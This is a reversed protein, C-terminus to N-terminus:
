GYTSHFGPAELAILLAPKREAGGPSTLLGKLVMTGAKYDIEESLM